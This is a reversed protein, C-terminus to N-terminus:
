LGVKELMKSQQKKEFFRSGFYFAVVQSIIAFMQWSLTLPAATVSIGLVAICWWNWIYTFSAFGWIACATIGWIPRIVARIFNIAPGQIKELEVTYMSRASQMLQARLEEMKFQFEIFKDKDVIAEKAIDVGGDLAKNITEIIGPGKRFLGM